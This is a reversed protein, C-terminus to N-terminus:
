SDSCADEGEEPESLSRSKEESRRLRELEPMDGHMTKEERFSRIIYLLVFVVAGVDIFVDALNFVFIPLFEMELMDVVYGLLVRDIANGVTGGLVLAVATKEWRSLGRRLLFFVMLVAASVSLISLIWTHNSLISLAAGTNQELRLQLVGPILSRIEHLNMNSSAWLKLLQDLAFAAAAIIMYLM